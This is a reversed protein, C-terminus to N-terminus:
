PNLAAPAPNALYLAEAATLAKNYMRVEDILGNFYNERGGTATDLADASARCGIYTKCATTRAIQKSTTTGVAGLMGNIYMSKTMNVSDFVCVVHVWIGTRIPIVSYFDEIGTGRTTFVVQMGSAGRRVQWGVPSEGRNAVIDHSWATSWATPNIWVAVSFDGAPNFANGDAPRGLDIYDNTGNCDAAKGFVTALSNTTYDPTKLYSTGNYATGFGKM